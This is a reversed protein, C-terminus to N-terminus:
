ATTRAARRERVFSNSAPLWAFVIGAIHLAILALGAHNMALANVPLWSVAAFAQWVLFAAVAALSAIATSIIRAWNQGRASAISLLLYLALSAAAFCAYLALLLLIAWGSADAIAAEFREFAALYPEIKVFEDPGLGDILGALRGANAHLSLYQSRIMLAAVLPTFAFLVGAAGWCLGALRLSWPPRLRPGYAPPAPVSAGTSAGTGASEGPQAYESM